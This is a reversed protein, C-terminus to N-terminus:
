GDDPELQARYIIEQRLRMRERFYGWVPELGSALREKNELETEVEEIALLRRLRFRLLNGPEPAWELPQQLAIRLRSMDYLWYVLDVGPRLVLVAGVFGATLALALSGQFTFTLGGFLCAVLCFAVLVSGRMWIMWFLDVFWAVTIALTLCLVITAAPLIPDM